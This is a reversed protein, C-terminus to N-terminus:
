KGPGFHYRQHSKPLLVMLSRPLWRLSKGIAPSLSWAGSVTSADLGTGGCGSIAGAVIVAVYVYPARPSMGGTVSVQYWPSALGFIQVSPPIGLCPSPM